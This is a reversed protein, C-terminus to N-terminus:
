LCFTREIHLSSDRMRDKKNKGWRVIFLGFLTIGNEGIPPLTVMLLIQGLPQVPKEPIGCSNCIHKTNFMNRYLLLM